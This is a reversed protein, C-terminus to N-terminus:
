VLERKHARAKEVMDFYSCTGAITSYVPPREHCVISTKYNMGDTQSLIIKSKKSTGIQNKRRKQEDYQAKKARVDPEFMDFLEFGGVEDLWLYFNLECLSYETDNDRVSVSRKYPAHRGKRGERNKSDKYSQHFNIWVIYEGNAIRKLIDPQDPRNMVGIIKYPYNTKDLYYSMEREMLAYRVVFYNILRRSTNDRQNIFEFIRKRRPEYELEKRLRTYIIQEFSSLATEPVADKKTNRKGNIQLIMFMCIVDVLEEVNVKNLSQCMALLNYCFCSLDTLGRKHVTVKEPAREVTPQSPQSSQSSQIPQVLDIPFFSSFWDSVPNYRDDDPNQTSNTNISSSIM